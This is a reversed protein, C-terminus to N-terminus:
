APAGERALMGEEVLVDRLAALHAPDTIPLRPRRVHGAPQGLMHMLAKLQAQYSGFQGAWGGPLWLKPFLRDSREAHARMGEVNGSWHDEWFQPDPRGYLSGGGVTGDGGESRLVEVGRASMYPGFVSRANLVQGLLTYLGYLFLQPICWYALGVAVAKWEPQFQAAYLTILLTAAATLLVTIGALITMALTLLRNVYEEGGDRRKMARVVQPVLVANLVGGALLMSIINPLKNAVSWADSMSGSQGGFAVMGIVAVLLANRLLGLVRSVLTGSAMVAASTALARNSSPSSGEPEPSGQATPPLSRTSM